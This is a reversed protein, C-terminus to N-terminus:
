LANLTPLQELDKVRGTYFWGDLVHITFKGRQLSKLSESAQKGGSARCSLIRRASSSPQASGKWQPASASSQTRSTAKETDKDLVQMLLISFIIILFTPRATYFITKQKTKIRSSLVQNFNQFIHLFTM